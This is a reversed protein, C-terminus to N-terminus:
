ALRGRVRNKVATEVVPRLRQDINQFPDITRPPLSQVTQVVAQYVQGFNQQWKPLAQQIRQSIVPAGKQIAAQRWAEDGVRRVGAQRLRQSIVQQMRAAYNQEAADSGAAEAWKARQVGAQYRTPIM